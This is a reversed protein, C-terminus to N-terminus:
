KEQSSHQRDHHWGVVGTDEIFPLMDSLKQIDDKITLEGKPYLSKVGPIGEVDSVDILDRFIYGHEFVPTIEIGDRPGPYFEAARATGYFSSFESESLFRDFPLNPPFEKGEIAKNKKIKPTPASENEQVYFCRLLHIAEVRMLGGFSKYSSGCSAAQVKIVSGNGGFRDNAAGFYVEKIGMQQLALACMVCPEVTVYLVLRSFFREVQDQSVNCLQFKKMIQDIAVFEAHRTGNLSANTDNCGFGLVEGTEEHVIICAVPTELNCLARYAVFTALALNKFHVTLDNMFNYQSNFHSSEHPEDRSRVHPYVHTNPSM